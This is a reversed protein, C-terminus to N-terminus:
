VGSLNKMIKYITRGYKRREAYNKYRPNEIRKLFIDSAEKVTTASKIDQWADKFDSGTLMEERFFALQANLNSVSLGMNKAKKQLRKKRDAFTWQLLGYGKGDNTKYKYDKNHAGLTSRDTYNDQLNDASFVSENMINGCVGATQKVTLEMGVRLFVWTNAFTDRQTYDLTYRDFARDIEKAATSSAILCKMTYAKSLKTKTAGNMEGSEFLGYVTQFNKIAKKSLDTGLRGDTPGSYFGLSHLANQIQYNHALRDVSIGAQTYLGYGEIDNGTEYIVGTNNHNLTENQLKQVTSTQTTGYLVSSYGSKNTSTIEM